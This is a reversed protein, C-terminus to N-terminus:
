KSKQIKLNHQNIASSVINTLCSSRHSDAPHSSMWANQYNLENADFSREQMYSLAKNLNVGAQNLIYLAIMDAKYEDLKQFSHNTTNIVSSGFYRGVTGLGIKDLKSEQNKVWQQKLLDNRWGHSVLHGIEHALVFLTAEHNKDTLEQLLGDGFAIVSPMVFANYYETYPDRTSVIFLKLPVGGLGAISKLRNLSGQMTQQLPHDELVIFEEHIYQEAEQFEGLSYQALSIGENIRVNEELYSHWRESLQTVKRTAFGEFCSHPIDDFTLNLDYPLEITPYKSYSGCAFSHLTAEKKKSFVVKKPNCSSLLLFIALAVIIYYWKGLITLPVTYFAEKSIIKLAEFFSTDSFKKKQKM